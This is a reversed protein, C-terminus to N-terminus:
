AENPFKMYGLESKLMAETYGPPLAHIKYGKDFLSKAYFKNYLFAAVIGAIGYTLICALMLVLGPVWDQRFIPVWGGFFFTTWSFGLPVQKVEVGNSLTIKTHAM